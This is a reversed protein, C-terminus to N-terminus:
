RPHKLRQLALWGRIATVPEMEFELIGDWPGDPTEISVLGNFDPHPFALYRGAFRPANEAGGPDYCYAPFFDKLNSFDLPQDFFVGPYFTFTADFLFFGFPETGQSPDTVLEKTKELAEKLTETAGEPLMGLLPLGNDIFYMGLDAFDVIADQWDEIADQGGQRNEPRFGLFDESFLAQFEQNTITGNADTDLTETAYDLWDGEEPAPMGDVFDYFPQGPDIGYILAPELGMLETNVLLLLARISDQDLVIMDNDDFVPEYGDPFEEGALLWDVSEKDYWADGGDQSFLRSPAPPNEPPEILFYGFMLSWLSETTGDPMEVLLAETSEVVGNNNWDFNNPFFDIPQVIGLAFILARKAEELLRVVPVLDEQAQVALEVWEQIVSSDGRSASLVVNRLLAEQEPPQFDEGMEMMLLHAELLDCLALGLNAVPHDPDHEIVEEFLTRAVGTNGNDLGTFGEALFAQPDFPHTSCGAFLLAVLIVAGFFWTKKWM